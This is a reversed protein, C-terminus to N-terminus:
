CGVKIGAYCFGYLLAVALCSRFVTFVAALLSTTASGGFVHIETQELVYMLFTNVQPLLGITFLVPLFLIFVSIFINHHNHM